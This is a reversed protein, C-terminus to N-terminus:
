AAPTNRRPRGPKRDAFVRLVDTTRLRLGDSTEEARLKGESIVRYVLARSKGVLLAAEAVTVHTQHIM